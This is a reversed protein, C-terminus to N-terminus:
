ANNETAIKLNSLYKFEYEIIKKINTLHALWQFISHIGLLITKMAAFKTHSQWTIKTLKFLQTLIKLIINDCIKSPM